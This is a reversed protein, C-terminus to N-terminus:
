LLLCHLALCSVRLRDGWTEEMPIGDRQAGAAMCAPRRDKRIRSPRASRRGTMDGDGAGRMIAPHRDYPSGRRAACLSREAPRRRPDQGPCQSPAARIRAAGSSCLEANVLLRLSPQKGAGPDARRLLLFTWLFPRETARRTSRWSPATSVMGTSSCSRITEPPCTRTQFVTRMGPLGHMM